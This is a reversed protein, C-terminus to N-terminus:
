LLITKILPYTLFNFIQSTIPIKVGYKIKVKSFITVGYIELSIISKIPPLFRFHISNFQQSRFFINTLYFQLLAVLFFTASLSILM